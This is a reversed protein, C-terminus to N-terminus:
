PAGRAIARTSRITEEDEFNLYDIQGALINKMHFDLQPGFKINKLIKKNNKLIGLFDSSKIIILWEFPIM